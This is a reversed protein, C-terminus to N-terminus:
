YITLLSNLSIQKFFLVNNELSYGICEGSPFSNLINLFTWIHDKVFDDKEYYM